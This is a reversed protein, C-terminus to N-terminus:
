EEPSEAENLGSQEADETEVAGDGSPEVPAEPSPAPVDDYRRDHPEDAAVAPLVLSALEAYADPYIHRLVELTEAAAVKAHVPDIPFRQLLQVYVFPVLADDSMDDINPASWASALARLKCSHTVM